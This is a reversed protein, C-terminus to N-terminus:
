NTNTTSLQTPPLKTGEVEVTETETKIVVESTIRTRTEPRIETKTRTKTRTERVLHDAKEIEIGHRDVVIGAVAATATATTVAIRAVPVAEHGSDIWLNPVYYIKPSLPHHYQVISLNPLLCSSSKTPVIQHHVM